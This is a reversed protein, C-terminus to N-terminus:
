GAAEILLAIVKDDLASAVRLAEPSDYGSLASAVREYALHVSGDQEHVLITVPAYSGAAPLHRAMQIMILPNGALIRLMRYPRARPDLRLADGQDLRLFEMLGAPGVSDRILDQLEEFTSARAMAHSLAAMDPRSIHKAM